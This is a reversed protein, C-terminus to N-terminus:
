NYRRHLGVDPATPGRFFLPDLAGFRAVGGAELLGGLAVEPFVWWPPQPRGADAKVSDNGLTSRSNSEGDM